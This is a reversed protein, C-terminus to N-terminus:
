AELVKDYRALLECIGLFLGNHPDGIKESNGRFPLGREALFLTLDLMRTLILKWKLVESRISLDLAIDITAAKAIAKELRRWELYCSKHVHSKQHKEYLKRWNDSIGHLQALAPRGPGKYFLRCCLCYLSQKEDRIVRPLSHLYSPVVEETEVAM